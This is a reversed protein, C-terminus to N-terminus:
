QAGGNVISWADSLAEEDAAALAAAMAARVPSLAVEIESMRQYAPDTSDQMVIRRLARDTKGEIASAVQAMQDLAQKKKGAFTVSEVWRRGSWDWTSFETDDPKQPQYDIVEGGEFRQSLHDFLGEIAACGPPTSLPLRSEDGCFTWSKFFGDEGYFSWVSTKM